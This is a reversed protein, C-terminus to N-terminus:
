NNDKKRKTGKFKKDIPLENITTESFKKLTNDTSNKM